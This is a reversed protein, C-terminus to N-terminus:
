FWYFGCHIPWTHLGISRRGWLSGRQMDVLLHLRNAHHYVADCMVRKSPWAYPARILVTQTKDLLLSLSGDKLRATLRSPPMQHARSRATCASV